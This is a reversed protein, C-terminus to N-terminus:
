RRHGDGADYHAAVVASPVFGYGSAYSRPQNIAGWMGIANVTTGPSVTISCPSACWTSSTTPITGDTTYFISHNGHPGPGTTYGADTITVAIPSSYTGRPAPSITPAVSARASITQGTVNGTQSPPSAGEENNIYSTSASMQFINNNISSGGPSFGFAIGHLWKGQILNNSSTLGGWFEIGDGAWSAPNGNRDNVIGVNGILVNNTSNTNGQPLSYAWSNASVFFPDHYVNSDFNVLGDNCQSEYGIRHIGSFENFQILTNTSTVNGNNNKYCKGGQEQEQIANNTFTFNDTNNHLGFAACAGGGANLNPANQYLCTSGGTRPAYGSSSCTGPGGGGGYLTMLGTPGGCDGSGTFGFRNFKITTNQTHSGTWNGDLWIFTDANQQTTQLASNGYFWNWQVTLNNMGAPVFLFGGGGGPPHNGNWQLYQITVATNCAHGAFGWDNTIGKNTLVASPTFPWVNTAVAPGQITLASAPCPISIQSTISYSGAAFTVTNGGRAAAARNITSQIMATSAGSSIPFNAAHALRPVLLLLWLLKRMFEEGTFTECLANTSITGYWTLM